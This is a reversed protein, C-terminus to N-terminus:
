QLSLSATATDEYINFFDTTQITLNLTLNLPPTFYLPQPIGNPMTCDLFYSNANVDYDYVCDIRFSKGCGYGQITDSCYFRLTWLTVNTDSNVIQLEFYATGNASSYDFDAQFVVSDGYSATQPTISFSNITAFYNSTNGTGTGTTDTDTTGSGGGCGALALALGLLALKKKM